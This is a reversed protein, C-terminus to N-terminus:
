RFLHYKNDNVSVDITLKCELIGAAFGATMMRANM